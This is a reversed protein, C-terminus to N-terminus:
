RIFFSQRNLNLNPSTIHILAEEVASLIAITCVPWLIAFQEYLLFLPIVFVLFGTLKNAWTHLIAFSHYKYASIAVNGCRICVTIIIWPLFISVENGIWRIVSVTIAVFLIFDAFSDLRAGLESQTQTKRAVYGDLM